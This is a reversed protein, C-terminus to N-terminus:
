STFQNSLISFKSVTNLIFFFLEANLGQLWGVSGRWQSEAVANLALFSLCSRYGLFSEKSRCLSNRCHYHSGPITEDSTYMFSQFCGDPPDEM